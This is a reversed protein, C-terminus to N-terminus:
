SRTKYIQYTKKEKKKAAEAAADKKKKAEVAAAAIASDAAGTTAKKPKQKGKAALAQIKGADVVVPVVVPVVGEETGGEDAELGEGEGRTKADDGGGGMEAGGAVVVVDKKKKNKKNKAVVQFGNDASRGDTTCSVRGEGNSSGRSEDNEVVPVETGNSQEPKFESLLENLKDLEERKALLRERKSMSGVCPPTCVKVAAAIRGASIAAQQEKSDNDVLYDKKTHNINNKFEDVCEDNRMKPQEDDSSETSTKNDSSCSEIDDNESGSSSSNLEVGVRNVVHEEDKGDVDSEWMDPRDGRIGGGSGTAGGTNRGGSTSSSSTGSTTVFMTRYIGAITIDEHNTINLTTNPPCEMQRTTNNCCMLIPPLLQIPPNSSRFM